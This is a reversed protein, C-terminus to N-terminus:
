NVSYVMHDVASTHDAAEPMLSHFLNLELARRAPDAGSIDALAYADQLQQLYRPLGLVHVDSAKVKVAQSAVRFAPRHAHGSIAPDGEAPRAFLSRFDIKFVVM